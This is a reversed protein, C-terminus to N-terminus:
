RYRFAPWDDPGQRRTWAQRNLADRYRRTVEDPYRDFTALLDDRQAQTTFQAMEREVQRREQRGTRWLVFEARWIVFRETVSM